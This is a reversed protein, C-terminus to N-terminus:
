KVVVYEYINPTSATTHYRTIQSDSVICGEVYYQTQGVMLNGLAETLTGGNAAVYENGADLDVWTGIINGKKSTGADRVYITTAYEETRFLNIIKVHDEDLFDFRANM